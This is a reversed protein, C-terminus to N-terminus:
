RGRGWRPLADGPSESMYGIVWWEKGGDLEAMLIHVDGNLQDWVYRHFNAHKQWNAVRENALLEPVTAYDVDDPPEVSMFGPLHFRFRAM